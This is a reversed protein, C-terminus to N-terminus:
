LSHSDDLWFEAVASSKSSLAVHLGCPFSDRLRHIKRDDEDTSWKLRQSVSPYHELIKEPEKGPLLHRLIM